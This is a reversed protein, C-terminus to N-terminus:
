CGDQTDDVEALDQLICESARLRHAILRGMVTCRSLDVVGDGLALAADGLELPFAAQLLPLHLGPAPAQAPWSPPRDATAASLPSSAFPKHDYISREPLLQDLLQVLNPLLPPSPPSAPPSATGLLTGIAPSLHIMRAAVPDHALQLQRELRPGDKVDD